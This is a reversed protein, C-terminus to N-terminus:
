VHGQRSWLRRLALLSVLPILIWQLVPALGTGLVPLVPMDPAYQWRDLVRTAMWELVVTAALGLGLYGGVRKANWRRPWCRDGTALAIAVYAGLAILVDGFTAKSCLIVGELHPMASVGAYLPIQWFEWVFHLFFALVAVDVEPYRLFAATPANTRDAPM